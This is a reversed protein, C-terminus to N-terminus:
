QGRFPLDQTLAQGPTTLWQWLQESSINGECLRLLGEGLDPSEVVCLRACEAIVTPVSPDVGPHCLTVCFKDKHGHVESAALVEVAKNYDVLNGKEKSKLEAILQKGPAFTILYDPAGTKTKEDLKTFPLKLQNLIKEFVVEFENGISDYFAPILKADPCKKARQAQRECARKRQDKKWDRVKDRLWNAKAEPSPKVAKFVAIRIKDSAADGMMVKEPRSMGAKGLELIEARTIRFKADEDLLQTMWLLNDPLGESIRYSMRRIIRPLRAILPLAAANSVLAKPQPLKTAPDSAAVLINSLGSLAWVANRFMERLMGASLNPLSDELTRLEEGSIWQNLLHAGNLPQTDAQWTPEALLNAIPDGNILSQKSLPYPLHRTPQIGHQPTFEPSSFCAASLAFSLLELDGKGGVTPLLALLEKSKSVVYDILFTGTAPLLGSYAIAKGVPTAVLKGNQAEILLRDDILADIVARLKSPWTKFQATNLFEERQGSFTKTVLSLIDKRSACINSAVLQLALQEFREPSIRPVLTPLASLDLYQGAARLEGESGVIFVVRGSEHQTGMRGVRGAMNHFEDAGIPVQRRIDFDWRTWADFLATALPFNVGAALTSTAFVIDIKGNALAREVVNREEDILDATHIAFRNPLYSALLSNANTPPFSSLELSLQANAKSFREAYKAALKYSQPKSMCFVIIPLGSKGEKQLEGLVDLTALSSGTPLKIPPEEHDPKETLAVHIGSPSWCEYRLHKERKDMLLLTVGLWNALDDADKKALVASLGVFQSWAGKKLLTLLIEVNRGRNEDGVLQIEDCCIVTKAFSTPVGSASLLALYKEYTAILIPAQLPDAPADGAADEVADGTALVISAKSSGLHDVLLLEQFDEFKQKALARHTVLYVACLKASLARAIAWTAIQTKGTSTPSVVLLSKGRAVGAALAEFQVDTIAPKGNTGKFVLKQQVLETLGHGEPLSAKM